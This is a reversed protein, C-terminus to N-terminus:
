ANNLGYIARRSLAYTTETSQDFGQVCSIGMLFSSENPQSAHVVLYYTCNLTARSLALTKPIQMFLARPTM